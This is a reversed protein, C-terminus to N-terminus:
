SSLRADNAKAQRLQESLQYVAMAYLPSHNYRTIVYFNNLGLWYEQHEQQEFALLRAKSTPSVLGASASDTLAVGRSQLQQWSHQLSLKKSLLDQVDTGKVTVPLAVPQGSQWGHRAFYNAVSGIADAPNNLLDRVGDGDFDLAYARYSSPMFQGWGMAGAYSGLLSNLTFKEERALLLLQELEKRFYSQRPPYYFALTNLADLVPYKGTYGGYFTEVGIIAVIIQAPVGTQQEAKSLDAAHQGWFELGKNLRKDTLFIPFYQHWPKAEWPKAIAQLIGDNKNAQALIHELELRTFQHKQVMMDIFQQKDASMEAQSSLSTLLLLAASCVSVFRM